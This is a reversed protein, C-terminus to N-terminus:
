EGPTQELFDILGPHLLLHSVRWFSVTNTIISAVKAESMGLLANYREEYSKDSYDVGDLVRVAYSLNRIQELTDYELQSIKELGLRRIYMAYDLNDLTTKSRLTVNGGFPLKFEMEFYGDASFIGKAAYILDDNDVGINSMASEFPASAIDKMVDLVIEEETRTDEAEEKKGDEVYKKEADSLEGSDKDQHKNEEAFSHAEFDIAESSISDETLSEHATEASIAQSEKTETKEKKSKEAKQTRPSM